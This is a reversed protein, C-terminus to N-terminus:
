QPQWLYWLRPETADDPLDVGGYLTRAFASLEDIEDRMIRDLIAATDPKTHQNVQEIRDALQRLREPATM